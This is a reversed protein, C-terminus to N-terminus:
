TLRFEFGPYLTDLTAFIGNVLSIADALASEMPRQIPTPVRHARHLPNLCTAMVANRVAPWQGHVFSSTWGYFRDYDDKTQSQEAMKRLDIGSWSGLDINVFEQYFDENALAKLTENSVLSPQNDAAMEYKLLALKAQGAGYSRFRAWTADGESQALYALTIRLETLTRVLLRGSIIRANMAMGIETLCALSYCTLGFAGDHRPDVATTTLTAAWHAMVAGHATELQHALEKGDIPKDTPETPELPMCRTDRLAQAWFTAVWASPGQVDGNPGGRFAIEMARIRPRVSRMEGHNPYLRLAEVFEDDDGARFRVKGLMVKFMITMWRIDTSAESQHDLTGAVAAALRDWTDEEHDAQLAPVLAQWRDRAPLGDFVLLPSLISRAVGAADMALGIRELVGEPMWELASHTVDWRAEGNRAADAFQGALICFRRFVELAKDRECAQHILAAWLVEPLRDNLWSVSKRNAIQMAPAILQRGERRHASLPSNFQRIGGKGKKSKKTM